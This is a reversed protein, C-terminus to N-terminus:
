TENYGLNKLFQENDRWSDHVKVWLRLFVKRKFLHQMALRADTGVLKLLEGQKGIVIAKQSYREVYIVAGIRYLAQKEDFQEIDVTLSYPLEQGLRCFLKEQVLEAALFRASRDTLQTDPFILDGVPMFHIIAAELDNVYMGKRASIPIIRAFNFEEALKEISPLLENKDSLKDIKNIVLIVPIHTNKRLCALARRDDDTWKMADVVLLVVDVDQTSAVAVRNMYRNIARRSYDSHIGPTDVYVLQSNHYTKIGLIRHRTTQPKRSTICLKQGLIRNILTSKGVNPRGIIAVYGSKFARDTM